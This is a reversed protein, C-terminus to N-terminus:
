REEAKLITQAFALLQRKSNPRLKRYAGVLRQEEPPISQSVYTIAKGQGFHKKIRDEFDDYGCARLVREAELGALEAFKLASEPSLVQQGAAVRGMYSLTLEMERALNTRVGGFRRDVADNVMRALEPYQTTM